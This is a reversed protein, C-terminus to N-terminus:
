LRDGRRPTEDVGAVCSGLLALVASMAM